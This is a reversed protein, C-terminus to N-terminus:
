RPILKVWLQVSRETTLTLVKHQPWSQTQVCCITQHESPPSLPTYLPATRAHHILMLATQQITLNCANHPMRVPGPVFMFRKQLLRHPFNNMHSQETQPNSNRTKRRNLYQYLRMTCAYLTKYICSNPHAHVVIARVEWLTVMLLNMRKKACYIPMWSIPSTM